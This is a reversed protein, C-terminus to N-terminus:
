NYVYITMTRTVAPGLRATIEYCGPAPPVIFVPNDAYREATPSADPSGTRGASSIRLQETAREGGPRLFQASGAGDVRRATLILDSDNGREVVLISRIFDNQWPIVPLWRSAMWLPAEGITPGLDPRESNVASVACAPPPTPFVPRGASDSFIVATPLRPIGTPETQAAATRAARTVPTPTLTRPDPASSATAGCGTVLAILALLPLNRLM